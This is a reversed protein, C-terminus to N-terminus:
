EEKSLLKELVEALENLQLPKYLIANAQDTYHEKDSYGTIVIIPKSPGFEERIKRIMELGNMVPMELDTIVMDPNYQRTLALGEEGNDAEQVMKVRRRLFHSIESRAQRDDEAYVIVKSKLEGM